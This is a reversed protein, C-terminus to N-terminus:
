YFQEIVIEEGTTEDRFRFRRLDGNSKGKGIYTCPKGETDMPWESAQPWCPYGKESKFAEKIKAKIAKKRETKKMTEPFLPIIHKQIYKESEGGELYEPIVELSFSYAEDYKYCYPVSQDIQYYISYVETYFTSAGDATEVDHTLLRFEYTLCQHVTEYRPPCYQRGPDNEPDLLDPVAEIYPNEVGDIMLPFYLIKRSQDKKMDDIIKQLFADIESKEDYLRRFEVIDLNGSLFDIITQQAYEM